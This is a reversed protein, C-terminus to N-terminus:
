APRLLRAVLRVDGCHICVVVHGSPHQVVRLADPTECTLCTRRGARRRADRRARTIPTTGATM